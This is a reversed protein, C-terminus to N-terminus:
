RRPGRSRVLVDRIRPSSSTAGSRPPPRGRCRAPERARGGAAARDCAVPEAAAGRPAVRRHPAALAPDQRLIALELQQLAQGPDIGLEDALRERARAYTALADAQRDCRYLATMLQGWFRERM